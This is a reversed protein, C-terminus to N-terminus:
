WSFFIPRLDAIVAVANCMPCKQRDEISRNICKSCFIHGCKTAAIERGCFNEFCISCELASVVKTPSKECEWLPKPPNVTFKVEIIVTDNRVFRKKPDMFEPWKILKGYGWSPTGWRFIDSTTKCDVPEIKSNFSMLKFSYEVEWCWNIDMDDEVAWLYVAFHEDEKRTQIKWRISRVIVEPSYTNGLKSVNEVIVRLKTSMQEMAMMKICNLPSTLIEVEFTVDNEQVHHNQSELLDPWSCFESIGHSLCNNNFEKNSFVKTLEKESSALSLLKFVARVRCSWKEIGIDSPPECVLFVDVVNVDDSNESTLRKCVKVKWSLKSLNLEPSFIDGTELSNINLKFRFVTELCNLNTSAM